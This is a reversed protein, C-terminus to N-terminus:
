EDDIGARGLYPWVGACLGIDASAGRAALGALRLGIGRRRGRRGNGRRGGGPGGPGGGMPGGGGGGEGGMSVGDLMYYNTNSRLGNSHIGGGPGGGTTIGPALTLLSQVTRGNVPLHELASQEMTVGVSSDASLGELQDDVTVSVSSGAIALEHRLSLRDRAKVALREIRLEGFGKYQIVLSYEGPEVPDFVYSASANTVTVHKAGREQDTLTVTAGVVLAKSPDLVTGFLAGSQQAFGAPLLAIFLCVSLLPTLIQIRM